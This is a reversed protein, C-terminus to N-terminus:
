KVPPLVWVKPILQLRVKRTSLYKPSNLSTTFTSAEGSVEEAYSAVEPLVVIEFLM